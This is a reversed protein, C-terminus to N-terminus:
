RQPQMGPATTGQKVTGPNTTGPNTTGPNTTGPNTMGAGGGPPVGGTAGPRPQIVIEVRRNNARGEPSENPAIPQQEGRGEARIRDASVGESVLFERVSEAREQSLTQNLEDTGRSDTHGEVVIMQDPSTQQLAQAVSSLRERAVPMLNSQGSAFLVSGALSIVTGRSDERVEAIDRLKAMAAAARKEAELRAQRERQMQEGQAAFEQRVSSLDSQTNELQQEAQRRLQEQRERYLAEATQRDREAGGLEGYAAAIQAQREAVYALSRERYSGADEEHAREARDLAQKATMVRAPAYTNAESAQVREYAQRANVLHQSPASSGCAAALVALLSILSIHKM